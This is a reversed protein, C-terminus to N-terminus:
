QNKYVTKPDVLRPDVVNVSSDSEVRRFFCSEYGEHCAAGTQEVQMLITDADCDIRIETVRQQHGSSEGKRWLKGRSRSFYVAAGTSLTEQWAQEDMWAMMLVRGSTADQAIAPLVGTTGPFPQGKAFDPISSVIEDPNSNRCKPNQATELASEGAIIPADTLFPVVHFVPDKPPGIM